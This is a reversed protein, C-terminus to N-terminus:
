VQAEQMEALVLTLHFGLRALAAEVLAWTQAMTEQKLGEM